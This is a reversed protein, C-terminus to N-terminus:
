PAIAHEKIRYADAHRRVSKPRRKGNCVEVALGLDDILVSLHMPDPATSVEDLTVWSDSTPWCLGTLSILACIYEIM